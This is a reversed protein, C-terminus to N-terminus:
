HREVASRVKRGKSPRRTRPAKAPESRRSPSASRARARGKWVHVFWDVVTLLDAEERPTPLDNVANPFFYAVSFLLVKADDEVSDIRLQRQEVGQRLIHAVTDWMMQGEEELRDPKLRLVARTLEVAHRSGTRIEDAARFRGVLYRRLKEDAPLDAALVDAIERRHREVFEGACAVTLDDKSKFCLYLTGVAVDADAAIEQMTTKAIGYYRFRNRAAEIIRQRKSM